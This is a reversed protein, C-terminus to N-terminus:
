AITPLADSIGNARLRQRLKAVIQKLRTKESKLQALEDRLAKLASGRVTKSPQRSLKLERSIINVAAQYTLPRGLAEAEQRLVEIVKGRKSEEINLIQSAAEFGVVNMTMRTRSDGKKVRGLDHSELVEQTREFRLVRDYPGHGTAELFGKFTKYKKEWIRSKAKVKLLVSLYAASSEGEERRLRDALTVLPDIQAM